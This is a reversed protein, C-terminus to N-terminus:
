LGLPGVKKGKAKKIKKAPHSAEKEEPTEEEEDTEMDYKMVSETKEEIKTMRTKLETMDRRFERIFSEFSLAQNSLNDSAYANSPTPVAASTMVPTVSSVKENGTTTVLTKGVSEKKKFVMTQISPKPRDPALSIPMWNNEVIAAERPPPTLARVLFVKSGFRNMVRVLNIDWHWIGKFSEQLQEFAVWPPVQRIEYIKQDQRHLELDAQSKPLIVPVVDAFCSSLIRVGLGKRGAELGLTRSEVPQIRTLAGELVEESGLWVVRSLSENPDDKTKFLKTFVGDKGSAQLLKIKELNTVTIVVELWEEDNIRKVSPRSRYLVKDMNHKKLWLEIPYEPAAIAAAYDKANMYRKIFQVVIRATENKIPLTAAQIAASRQHVPKVIKDGLNTIWRPIFDVQGSEKKVRVKIERSKSGAGEIRSPTVIAIAGKPASLMRGGVENFIAEGVKQSVYTSSNVHPFPIISTSCLRAEM